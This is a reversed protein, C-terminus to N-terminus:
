LLERLRDAAKGNIRYGAIEANLDVLDHIVGNRILREVIQEVGEAPPSTPREVPQEGERALLPTLDKEEEVDVDVDVDQVAPDPVPNDGLGTGRRKSKTESLWGGKLLLPLNEAIVEPRIRTEAWLWNPDAELVNSYRTAVALLESWLLRAELPLRDMEIDRHVYHKFWPPHTKAKKWANRDQYKWFNCVSLYSM